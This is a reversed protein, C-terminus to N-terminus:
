RTPESTLRSYFGGTAAAVLGKLELLLLMSSVADVTLGSREVFEDVPIPDYGLSNLLRQYDKDLDPEAPEGPPSAPSAELEIQRAIEELLDDASEVLNAGQRILAHCGKATPNHISGSIAFVKHGQEAALRATILSGSRKAAEVVLAGPSLVSILRNRRPFSEPKPAV